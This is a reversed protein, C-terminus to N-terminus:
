LIGDNHTCSIFFRVVRWELESSRENQCGVFRFFLLSSFLSCCWCCGIIPVASKKGERKVTLRIRRPSRWILPIVHSDNVTIGNRELSRVQNWHHSKADKDKIMRILELIRINWQFFIRYSQRCEALLEVVVLCFRHFPEIQKSTEM